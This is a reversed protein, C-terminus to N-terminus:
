RSSALVELFARAVARLPVEEAGTLRDSLLGIANYELRKSVEALVAQKGPFYQYLSGISVGAIEAIRNTTLSEYGDKALVRSAGTVIAEVIEEGRRGQPQRRPAAMAEQRARSGM